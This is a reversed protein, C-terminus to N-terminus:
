IRMQIKCALLVSGEWVVRELAPSPRRKPLHLGPRSRARKGVLVEPQQAYGPLPLDIGELKPLQQAHAVPPLSCPFSVPLLSLPYSFGSVWSSM